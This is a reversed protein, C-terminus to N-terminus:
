WPCPQKYRDRCTSRGKGTGVRAYEREGQVPLRCSARSADLRSTTSMFLRSFMNQCFTRGCIMSRRAATTTSDGACLERHARAHVHLGLVHPLPLLGDLSSFLHSVVQMTQVDCANPVRHALLRFRPPVCFLGHCASFLLHSLPFLCHAQAFLPHVSITCPRALAGELFVGALVVRTANFSAPKLAAVM